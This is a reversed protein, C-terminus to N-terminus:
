LEYQLSVSKSAGYASSFAFQLNYGGTDGDVDLCEGIIYLGPHKKHEFTKTSIESLSVGGATVMAVDFGGTGSVSFEWTRGDTMKTLRKPLESEKDIEIILKQGPKAYRSLNLIVPGSFSKHTILLDDTNKAVPKEQEKLTVKVNKLSIGSLQSFPYNEVYVPVIAAKLPSVEINLSQLLNFMSGDSGTKVFSRGGTAVILNKTEYKDNILYGYPKESIKEVKTNYLKDFNKCSSVMAEVVDKSSLSKPFVKGDEREFTKVGRQEFFEIVKLNNFKYLATRISKGNKGYHNLFDKISGGHTINCQGSGSLLVKKGPKDGQEIILGKNVKAMAAAFLGSAGAGVIVLDYM